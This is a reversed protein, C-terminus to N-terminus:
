KINLYITKELKIKKYRKLKEWYMKIVKRIANIIITINSERRYERM